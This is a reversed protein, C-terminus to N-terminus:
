VARRKRRGRTAAISQDKKKPSDDGAIKNPFLGAVEEM